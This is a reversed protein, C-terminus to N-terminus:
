DTGEPDLDVDLDVDLDLDLVVASILGLYNSLGFTIALAALIDFQEM